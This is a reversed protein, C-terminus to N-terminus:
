AAIRKLLEPDPEGPLRLGFEQDNTTVDKKASAKRLTVLNQRILNPVNATEEMRKTVAVIGM